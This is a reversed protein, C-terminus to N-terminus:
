TNSFKAGITQPPVVYKYSVCLPVPPQSNIAKGWMKISKVERHKYIFIHSEAEQDQWRVHLNSSFRWVM